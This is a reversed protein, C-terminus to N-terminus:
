DERKKLFRLGIGQPKVRSKKPRRKHALKVEPQYEPEQVLQRELYEDVWEKRTRIHKRDKIAKLRGDLMRERAQSYSCDLMEAVERITLWGAKQCRKPRPAPAEPETETSPEQVPQDSRDQDDEDIADFIQRVCLALAALGPECPVGNEALTFPFRRWRGLTRALRRSPQDGSLHGRLRAVYESSKKKPASLGLSWHRDRLLEELPFGSVSLRAPEYHDGSIHTPVFSDHEHM